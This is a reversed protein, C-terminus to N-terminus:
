LKSREGTKLVTEGVTDVLDVGSIAPPSLQIKAPVTELMLERAVQIRHNGNLVSYGQVNKRVQIAPLPAGNEIAKRISALRQGDLTARGSVVSSVPLQTITEAVDRDAAKWTKIVRFDYQPELTVTTNDALDIYSMDASDRRVLTRSGNRRVYVRIDAGAEVEARVDLRAQGRGIFIDDQRLFEEFQAADDIKHSLGGRVTAMPVKKGGLPYGLRGNVRQPWRFLGTNKPLGTVRPALQGSAVGGLGRMTAVAKGYAPLANNMVLRGATMSMKVMGAVLKLLPQAALSAADLTCLVAPADSTQVANFCSLGPMLVELLHLVPPYNREVKEVWAVRRQQVYLSQRHFFLNHHAATQAIARLQWLGLTDPLGVDLQPEFVACEVPICLSNAGPRVLAGTVYATWDLEVRTGSQVRYAYRQKEPIETPLPALDARRVLKYALPFVEYSFFDDGDTCQLIFGYRGQALERDEANERDVPMLTEARLVFVQVRGRALALQDSRPIQELLSEIIFAYSRRAHKFYSDFAEDFLTPLDVGKLLDIKALLIERIPMQGDDPVFDFLDRGSAMSGAAFLDLLFFEGARVSPAPNRLAYEIRKGVSTPRMRLYRMTYALVGFLEAFKQEAMTKRDPPVALVAQMSNIVRMAYDDLAQVAAQEQDSSYRGDPRHDLKGHAVAWQLAAPIRAQAILGQAQVDAGAGAEMALRTLQDADMKLASGPRLIEAVNVGHIFNAWALTGCRLHSAQEVMALEPHLPQLLYLALSAMSRSRNGEIDRTRYHMYDVLESHLQAPDLGWNRAACLDYSSIWVPRRLRPPELELLLACWVLQRLLAPDAQQDALYEDWGLTTHLQQGLSRAATSGLIDDRLNALIRPELRQGDFVELAQWALAKFLTDLVITLPTLGTYSRPKVGLALVEAQQREVFRNVTATFVGLEPADCLERYLVAPSTRAFIAAQQTISAIQQSM